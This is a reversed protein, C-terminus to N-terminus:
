EVAKVLVRIEVAKLNAGEKYYVYVKDNVGVLDLITPAKGAAKLKENLTGLGQGVVRTKSDVAFVWDKAGDKVTLSVNSVATVAGRVSGGTVDAGAVEEFPALGSRIDVATLVGAMDKYHIEVGMGPKVFDIFKVGAAGTQEAKRQATAGGRATLETDKTVKFTMDKGLVKVTVTDPGVSVVNGRVFKSQAAAMPVCLLSAMVAVAVLVLVRRM